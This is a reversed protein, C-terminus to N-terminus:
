TRTCRLFMALARACSPKPSESSLSSSSSSSSSSDTLNSTSSSLFISFFSSSSCFSPLSEETDGDGSREPVSDTHASGGSSASPVCSASTASTTTCSSERSRSRVELLLAFGSVCHAGGSDLGTGTGRRRGGGDELLCLSDSEEPESLFVVESLCKGAM